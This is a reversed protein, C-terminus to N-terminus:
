VPVQHMHKKFLNMIKRPTKSYDGDLTTPMKSTIVKPTRKYEWKRTIKMFNHFYIYSSAEQCYEEINIPLHHKKIIEITRRECDLECDRVTNISKKVTTKKFDEGNLWRHVIDWSDFRKHGSFYPSKDIWQTMHCYEHALISLLDKYLVKTAVALEAPDHSFYGGYTTGDEDRIVEENILNFEVNHRKCERRVFKIFQNKYKHTPM